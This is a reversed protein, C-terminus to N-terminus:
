KQWAQIENEIISIAENEKKLAEYRLTHAKVILNHIDKMIKVELIPVPIEYLMSQIPRCLKTGSQTSRILRFGYESSLWTFLYGSPIKKNTKMRIFEGSVLQGELEENAFVVRCFTESEGLTGVGAILVEGYQVLNDVKVKKRAIFKGKMKINFIDSQNILKISRPSDIELRPFSGTSFFSNDEIVESLPTCENSKKIRKILKRMRESYNFANLTTSSISKSSVAFVAPKRLHSHSGFFEYDDAKLEELNASKYLINRASTILENAQSRLKASYSIYDHVRQQLSKPFFPIPLKDLFDPEIHQIVAGFVGQTMLAYGFKSTLYAYL